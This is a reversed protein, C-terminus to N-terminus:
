LGVGTMFDMKTTDVFFAAIGGINELALMM